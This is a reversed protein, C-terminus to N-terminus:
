FKLNLGLMPANHFYNYQPTFSAQLNKAKIRKLGEVAEKYKQKSSLPPIAIKAILASLISVGGAGALIYTATGADEGHKAVLKDKYLLPVAAAAGGLVMFMYARNTRRDFKYLDIQANYAQEKDEYISKLINLTAKSQYKDHMKNVFEMATEESGTGAYGRYTKLIALSDGTLANQLNDKILKQSTKYHEIELKQLYERHKRDSELKEPSPAFLDYVGKALDQYAKEQQQKKYAEAAFVNNYITVNSSTNSSSSSSSTITTPERTSSSSSATESSGNSNVPSSEKKSSSSAGSLSSSPMTVFVETVKNRAAVEQDLKKKDAIAAARMQQAKIVSAEYNRKEEAAKAAREKKDDNVCALCQASASEDKATGRVKKAYKCWGLNMNHSQARTAVGIALLLCIM